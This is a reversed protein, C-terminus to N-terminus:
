TSSKRISVNRHGLRDAGVRASLVEDDILTAVSKRFTHSTSEAVGLDDRVKRWQKGFNNPDRLTGATSPFIVDLVGLRQAVRKEFM